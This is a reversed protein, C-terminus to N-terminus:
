LGAGTWSKGLNELELLTKGTLPLFTAIELVGQVGQEDKLPVISLYSPSAAGLGSFVTIYGAPVKDIYLTKGEKGVRGILGEGILYTYQKTGQDSLAFGNKLEFATGVAVYLAIQGAQLQRSLGNILTQSVDVGDRIITLLIDSDLQNEGDDSSAERQQVEQKPAVYLITQSTSRTALYISLLGMLFTLGITASVQYITIEAPATQYSYLSGASTVIGAFFM